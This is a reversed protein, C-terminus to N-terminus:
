APALRFSVTQCRTACRLLHCGRRAELPDVHERASQIESRRVRRDAHHAVAHGLQRRDLRVVRQHGARHEEIVFGLAPDHEAIGGDRGIDLLGLAPKHPRELRDQARGQDVLFGAKAAALHREGLDDLDEDPVQFGLRFFEGAPLDGGDHHAARHTKDVVVVLGIRARLGHQLTHRPLGAEALDGEGVFGDGGGMVVLLGYRALLQHQDGVDAAARAVERDHTDAGLSSPPRIAAAIHQGAGAHTDTARIEVGREAEGRHHRQQPEARLEHLLVQRHRVREKVLEGGPRRDVEGVGVPVLALHSLQRRQGALGLLDRPEELQQLLPQAM